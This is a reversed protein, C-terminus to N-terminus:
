FIKCKVYEVSATGHISALSDGLVMDCIDCRDDDNFPTYSVLAKGIAKGCRSCYAYGLSDAWSQQELITVVQTTLTASM